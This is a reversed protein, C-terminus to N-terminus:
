PNIYRAKIALAKLTPDKHVLQLLPACHRQLDRMPMTEWGDPLLAKALELFVSKLLQRAQAVEGDDGGGGEASLLINALPNEPPEVDVGEDPTVKLNANLYTLVRETREDDGLGCEQGWRGTIRDVLSSVPVERNPPPTPYDLRFKRLHNLTQPNALEPATELVALDYIFHLRADHDKIHLLLNLFDHPTLWGNYRKLTLYGEKIGDRCGGWRFGADKSKGATIVWGAPDDDPDPFFNVSVQLKLAGAEIAGKILDWLTVRDKLIDPYIGTDHLWAFLQDSNLIFDNLQDTPANLIFAKLPELDIPETPEAETETLTPPAPETPEVKGMIPESVSKAPETAGATPNTVVKVPETVNLPPTETEILTPTTPEAPEVKIADTENLPPPENPQETPENPREAPEVGAVVVKIEVAGEQALERLAEKLAEKIIVKLELADM